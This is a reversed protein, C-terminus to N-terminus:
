GASQEAKQGQAGFLTADLRRAAERNADPFLHGYRDFTIEISAHRMQRQVYKPSEGQNILLSACTHRLDHFRIRRLGAKKLAPHFVRETVNRDNLPTGGPTAFILDLDRYHEGAQLKEEAQRAKHAQLADLCAPTLDVSQSSGETKTQAFGVGQTETKRTLTEKVFYQGRNLDLNSWKAALLEGFRLGTTIATLFFAYWRGPVNDLFIRVEEPTLCDMEHKPVRPDKVKKAPNHRLYGWDVAHGFMQRVLRMAHRVTQPSLEAALMSSRFGQVDEVGIKALEMGGFTPIVHMRFLSLYQALTSPRVQGEAYKTLWVDKFAGFTMTSPEVWEGRDIQNLKDRLLKQAHKLTDPHTVKEWKQNRVWRGKKEDWKMGADYVVTYGNARKVISGRAM